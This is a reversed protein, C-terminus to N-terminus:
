ATASPSSIPRGSEILDLSGTHGFNRAMLRAASVSRAHEARALEFARVERGLFVKASFPDDPM